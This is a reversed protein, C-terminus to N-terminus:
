IISKLAWIKRILNFMTVNSQFIQVTIVISVTPEQKALVHFTYIYLGTALREIGTPLILVNRWHEENGSSEGM